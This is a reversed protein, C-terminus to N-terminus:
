PLIDFGATLAQEQHMSELKYVKFLAIAARCRLELADLPSMLLEMEQASSIFNTKCIADFVEEMSFSSFDILEYWDALDSTSVRGWAPHFSSVRVQTDSVPEVFINENNRYSWM